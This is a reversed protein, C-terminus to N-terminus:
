CGNKVCARALIALFSANAPRRILPFGALETLLPRNNAWAVASVTRINCEVRQWTSLCRRAVDPYILKTVSKLRAPDDMSLQVACVTCRFGTYNETIGLRRLLGRIEQASPDPMM